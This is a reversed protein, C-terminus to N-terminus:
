QESSSQLVLANAVVKDGPKVGSKIEQMDGPLMNGASVEVRRFQGGEAPAYIWDRDHLHLVASAPVSAHVDSTPSHFVATVFMGLRMVGPNEIELRIKATRITPDLVPMIKSIRARWVKGPYANLHIDAFEGIRVKSLDNEYVDCVIWVTSLDSITFPNPASLAQVGAGVTVQQDTIIGTAPSPIDVIGDPHSPDSGLVKLRERTTEVDVVAADHASQAIELDKKATVGKEFLTKARDLQTKVLAEQVLAKRHDSFAQSIDSSHVRLLVQGKHVEDGLRANVEVVRGSALSPVPVTRSVDPQVQGNVSLDDSAQYRGATALPFLEPRQVKVISSDPEKEVVAAPPAGATPDAQVKSGCGALSLVAACLVM